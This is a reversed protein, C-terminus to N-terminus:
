CILLSLDSAGLLLQASSKLGRVGSARTEVSLAPSHRLTPHPNFTSGRKADKHPVLQHPLSHLGQVDRKNIEHRWGHARTGKQAMESSPVRPALDAQGESVGQPGTKTCPPSAHLPQLIDFFVSASIDWKPSKPIPTPPILATQGKKPLLAFSSGLPTKSPGREQHGGWPRLHLAACCGSPLGRRGRRRGRRGSFLGTTLLSHPGIAGTPKLPRQLFQQGQPHTSHFGTQSPHRLTPCIDDCVSVCVHM